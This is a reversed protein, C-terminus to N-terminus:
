RSSQRHEKVQAFSLRPTNYRQLRDTCFCFRACESGRATSRDCRSKMTSVPRGRFSFHPIKGIVGLYVGSCWAGDSHTVRCCDIRQWLAIRSLHYLAGTRETGRFWGMWSAFHARIDGRNDGLWRGDEWAWIDVDFDLHRLAFFLIPLLIFAFYRWSSTGSTGM